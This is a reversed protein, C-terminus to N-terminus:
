GNVGGGRLTLCFSILGILEYVCYLVIAITFLSQVVTVLAEPLLDMYSGMDFEAGSWLVTEPILSGVAPMVLAPIQLKADVGTYSTADTLSKLSALVQTSPDPLADLIQDVFKDGSSTAEQKENEIVGQMEDGIQGPLKDLKDNTQQQQQLVEELTQGNQELQKEVETLIKNTKGIEQQMRYLSSLSMKVDFSVVEFEIIGDPALPSIGVFAVEFDCSYASKPANITFEIETETDAEFPMDSFIHTFLLNGSVDFYRVYISLVPTNFGAGNSNIRFKLSGMTGSPINSLGLSNVSYGLPYARLIASADYHWGYSQGARADLLTGGDRSYLCWSFWDLPFSLNVLDNDGDVEINTVYDEYNLVTTAALAPAACLMVLFLCVALILPTRKLM